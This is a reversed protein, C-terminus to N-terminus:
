IKKTKCLVKLKTHIHIQLVTFKQRLPAPNLRLNLANRALVEGYSITVPRRVLDHSVGQNVVAEEIMRDFESHNYLRKFGDM